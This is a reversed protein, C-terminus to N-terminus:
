AILFSDTFTGGLAAVFKMSIKTASVTFQAVGFSPTVYPRMWKRFYATKPDKPDIVLLSRGGTGINVIVSGAGRTLSTTANVVCLANYSTLSITPCTTSNLALQKSAEYNHLHAQLILDVRKSLLLNLLDPQSCPQYGASNSFLCGEAMGVTVWRINASRASDIANSVWTYDAGGLNYNYGSLVGPSIM